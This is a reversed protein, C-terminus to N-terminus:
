MLCDTCPLSVALGGFSIMGNDEHMSPVTYPGYTAKIRKSNYKPFFQAELIEISDSLCAPTDNKTGKSFVHDGRVQIIACFSLLCLSSLVQSFFHHM